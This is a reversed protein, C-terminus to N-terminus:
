IDYPTQSHSNELLQSEYVPPDSSDLELSIQNDIEITEIDPTAYIRKTVTPENMIGSEIIM